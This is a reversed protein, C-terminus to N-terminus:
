LIPSILYGSVLFSAFLVVCGLLFGAYIQPPVHANVKLRSTGLVGSIIFSIVLIRHLDINKIVSLGVITGVIGGIGIMHASIKWRLSIFMCLFVSICSGLTFIQILYLISRTTYSASNSIKLLIFYAFLYAIGTSLLPVVRERSTELHINKIINLSLMFPLMTIPVVFTTIFILIYVIRQAHAPIEYPLHMAPMIFLFIVVVGITPMLLPNLIYSIIKAITKGM